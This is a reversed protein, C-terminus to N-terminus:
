KLVSVALSESAIKVPKTSKAAVVSAAEGSFSSMQATLKRNGLYRVNAVAEMGSLVWM